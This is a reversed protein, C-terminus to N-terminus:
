TKEHSSPRLIRDALLSRAEEPSNWMFVDLISLGPEFSRRGQTYPRLTSELIRLQVGIREFQETDFLEEGGPPNVYVTAGLAEAIKPAWDGPGEVAGLDLSLQSFVRSEFEIELRACCLELGRVILTSLQPDTGEFTADILAITEEYHPARKRYHQLQGRIRALCAAKDALIIDQIPTGRSHKALPALIYQTGENPHLIRNRNVWGHRIFQPTDFVVWRDTADILQFYGIYPFLYPQM